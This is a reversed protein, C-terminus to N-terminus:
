GAVALWSQSATIASIAAEASLNIDPGRTTLTQALGSQLQINTSSLRGRDLRHHLALTHPLRTFTRRKRRAWALHILSRSKIRPACTDRGLLIPVSVYANDTVFPMVSLEEKRRAARVLKRLKQKLICGQYVIDLVVYLM